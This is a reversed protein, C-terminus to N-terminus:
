ISTFRFSRIEHRVLPFNNTAVESVIHLYCIFQAFLQDAIQRVDARSPKPQIRWFLDRGSLLEPHLDLQCGIDRVLIRHRKNGAALPTVRVMHVWIRIVDTKLDDLHRGAIHHDELLHKILIARFLPRLTFAGVVIQPSLTLTEMLCAAAYRAAQKIEM